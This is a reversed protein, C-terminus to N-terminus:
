TSVPIARPSGNRVDTLTHVKEHYPVRSAVWRRLWRRYPDPLSRSPDRSTLATISTALDLADGATVANFVAHDRATNLGAPHPRPPLSETYAHVASARDRLLQRTRGFM